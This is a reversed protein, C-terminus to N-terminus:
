NMVYVYTDGGFVWGPPGAIGAPVGHTAERARKYRLSVSSIVFVNEASIAVQSEDVAQRVLHRALRDGGESIMPSVIMLRWKNTEEDNSWFAAEVPMLKQLAEVLRQGNEIDQEVLTKIYM